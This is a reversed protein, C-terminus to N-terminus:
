NRGVPNEPEGAFRASADCVGIAGDDGVLNALAVFAGALRDVSIGLFQGAVPCDGVHGCDGNELAQAPRQNPRENVLNRHCIWQYHLAMTDTVQRTKASTRCHDAIHLNSYRICRFHAM